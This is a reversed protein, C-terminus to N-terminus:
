ALPQRGARMVPLDVAETSGAVQERIDVGESGSLLRAPDVPPVQVRSILPHQTPALAESQSALVEHLKEGPRLGVFQIEVRKGSLAILQNALDVIRVPTGMDLVMADGHDGFSGAQLVLQVAEPITMFFRTAEADTVTVPGGAAIQETFTLVASGRSGLVNGFRVSVWRGPHRRASAATLQEALRKSSGLVSSPDAAKDTSINVFTGVGVAAAAEIVNWTGRVNSKWAEDPYMELMPLHKLAAAHFVVDPRFEAFVAELAAPDRIDGLILDRTDLLGRGTMSLQLQLLASEDRDLMGLRDPQFRAIQRCLESGISGGAGTVLVRKGALYQAVESLDTQVQHRGLLDSIDLDRLDTYGVTDSMLESLPPLSRVKVDMGELGDVIRRYLDSGVSPAAILVQEVDMSGVLQPLDATTGAVAV